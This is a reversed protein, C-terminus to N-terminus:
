RPEQFDTIGPQYFIDRLKEEKTADFQFRELSQFLNYYHDGYVKWKMEEWDKSFRYDNERILNLEEGVALLELINTRVREGIVANFNDIDKDYNDTNFLDSWKLDYHEKQWGGSFLYDKKDDIVTERRLARVHNIEHVLVSLFEDPFSRKFARPYIMILVSLDISGQEKPDEFSQYRVSMMKLGRDKEPYYFSIGEPVRYGEDILHELREELYNSKVAERDVDQYNIQKGFIFSSLILLLLLLIFIFFLKKV